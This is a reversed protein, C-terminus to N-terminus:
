PNNMADFRVRAPLRYLKTAGVPDVWPWREDGFFPPKAALYLSDPLALAGKSWHVENTVYDFNGERLTTSLVKADAPRKWDEPDYGLQWMPVPPGWPPAAEYRFGAHPDPKMGPYGLVNGVFTYWWSGAMLGIARRNDVDPFSRRKGSAHNRFFTVYVSNGWTNDADVNFAQNGEFLEYHPCAMHSASMGVEMWRTYDEPTRGIFGDEFYNYGVVNGGGSARMVMVKNFHWFINNEILNDASAFSFSLGYAGGGPYLQPSHHFFSDRVVCRFSANLGISEGTSWESEVNKVWSYAALGLVINHNGGGYVHLDELGANRTAPVDWTSLQADHATDFAIHLPTTFRVADGSVSEIEVMQGVPRDPRSFWARSPSGPPSRKASWQVYGPDWLEDILALSGPVFGKANAVRVSTAGKAGDATLKVSALVHPWLPGLWVVAGNFGSSKLHTQKPGAGRLVIGKNIVLTGTVAFTGASLAVVQGVPCADIAARIAQTADQAGDGHTAADVTACARDRVPIGGPIGPKWSTRREAPLAFVAARPAAARAGPTESARAERGRAFGHGSALAAAAALLPGVRRLQM